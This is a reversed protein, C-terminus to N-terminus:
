ATPPLCFLFVQTKWKKFLILRFYDVHWLCVNNPPMNQEGVIALLWLNGVLPRGPNGAESGQVERSLCLLDHNDWKDSLFMSGRSLPLGLGPTRARSTPGWM